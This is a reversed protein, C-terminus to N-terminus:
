ASQSKERLARRAAGVMRLYLAIVILGGLFVLGPALLVQYEGLLAFQPQVNKIWGSVVIKEHQSKAVDSFTKGAAFTTPFLAATALFGALVVGLIMQYRTSRAAARSDDLAAGVRGIASSFWFEGAIFAGFAVFLGVRQIIGEIDVESFLLIDAKKETETFALYVFPFFFAFMGGFTLWSAISSIMAMGRGQLRNPMSSFGLRGMAFLLMGLFAAVGSALYPLATRLSFDIYPLESDPILEKKAFYEAIPLGSLGLIPIALIFVGFQVWLLSGALRRYAKGAVPPKAAPAAAPASGKRTFPDASRAPETSGMSARRAEPATPALETGAPPAVQSGLAFEGFSPQRMGPKPAATEPLAAASAKAADAPIPLINGCTPCRGRKGGADDPAHLVGGCNSCTVKIPM